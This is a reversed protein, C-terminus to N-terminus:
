NYIALVDDLISLLVTVIAPDFQKGSQGTFYERIKAVDWPEKYDRRSYLADFVDACAAIRAYPHIEDGSLNHYGTGDMREHHQAAMSSAASLVAAAESLTKHGITTHTKIVDYEAPTLASPKHLIATPLESKGCDHFLAAQAIIQSEAQLYGAREAILGSIASVRRSHGRESGHKLKQLDM